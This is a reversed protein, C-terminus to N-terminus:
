SMEKGGHGDFVAFLTSKPCNPLFCDHVFSELYNTISVTKWKSAFNITARSISQSSNWGLGM